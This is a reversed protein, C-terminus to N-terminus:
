AKARRQSKIKTCFAQASALERDLEELMLKNIMVDVKNRHLMDESFKTWDEHAPKPVGFRVGWAEISHPSNGTYGEPNPRKPYMKRSYVLTDLVIQHSKPKWGYLKHLLPLDHKIENHCVLIDAQELKALFQYLSSSNPGFQHYEDSGVDSTTACWLRTAEEVFGDSETDFVTIVPM